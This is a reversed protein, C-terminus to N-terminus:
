NRDLCDVKGLVNAIFYTEKLQRGRQNRITVPVFEIAADAHKELLAKLGASVLLLGLANPIFDPVMAGRTRDLQLTRNNPILKAVPVGENLLYDQKWGLM